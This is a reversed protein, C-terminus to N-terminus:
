PPRKGGSPNLAVIKPPSHTRLQRIEIRLERILRKARDLQDRTHEYLNTIRHLESDAEDATELDTSVAHRHAEKQLGLLFSKIEIKTTSKHSRGNLTNWHLGAFECFGSGSPRLLNPFEKMRALLKGDRKDALLRKKAVEIKKLTQDKSVQAIIRLHSYNPDSTM